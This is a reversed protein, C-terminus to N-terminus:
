PTASEALLQQILTQLQEAEGDRFGLHIHRVVGHRDILYSSPMAKVGFSEACHGVNDSAITFNAPYQALFDKADKPNEDMNIGVVQLGQNSLQNSLDNLFPMSKACPACWSAWFDVYVVKGRLKALEHVQSENLANVVCNPANGGEDVAYSNLSVTLLSACLLVFLRQKM